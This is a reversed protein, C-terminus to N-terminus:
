ILNYNATLNLDRNPMKITITRDVTSSNGVIEPFDGTTESWHSFNGRISELMGGSEEWIDSRARITVDTEPNFSGSLVDWEDGITVTDVDEGDAITYENQNLELSYKTVYFIALTKNSDMIFNIEENNYNVGGIRYNRFNFDEEGVYSPDSIKVNSNRRKKLTVRTVGEGVVVEDVQVNGGSLSPPRQRTGDGEWELFYITLDYEQIPPEITESIKDTYTSLYYYSSSPLTEAEDTRGWVPSYEGSYFVGDQNRTKIPIIDYYSFLNIDYNQMLNSFITVFEGGGLHIEFTQTPLESINMFGFGEPINIVKCKRGPKFTSSVEQIYDQTGSLEITKPTFKNPDKIPENPIEILTDLTYTFTGYEELSRWKEKFAAIYKPHIDIVAKKGYSKDGKNYYNYDKSSLKCGKYYARLLGEFYYFKDVNKLVNNLLVNYDSHYFSPTLINDDRDKSFRKYENNLTLDKEIIKLNFGLNGSYFSTQPRQSFELINYKNLVGGSGATFPNKGLDLSFEITEDSFKFKSHPIKSRDLIHPKYIFGTNLTSKAPIFKKFLKFLSSDFYKTLNLYEYINLLGGYNESYEKSIKDLEKYRFVGERRKRPDAIINNIIKSGYVNILNNDMENQLSFGIEIVNPTYNYRGDIYSPIEISSNKSLLTDRYNQTPIKIRDSVKAELGVNSQNLFITEINPNLVGLEIIFYEKGGNVFSNEGSPHLSEYSGTINDSDLDLLSGLPARFILINSSSLSGSITEGEISEPNMVFNDFINESIPHRYYRFEQFNSDINKGTTPDYGLYISGDNNWDNNYTGEISSSHNFGLYNGYGGIYPKNKLYLTFKNSDGTGSGIEVRNERQLMVGWWNNNFIPADIYDSQTTGINFYLRGYDKYPELSSSPHPEIFIGIDLGTDDKTLLPQTQESHFAKFRFIITDPVYSEGNYEQDYYLESWPVNIYSVENTYFSENYKDYWYDYDQTQNLTKGGYENIRLITSPIGFINILQKLGELTGKRKVLYPLNHYLRQHIEKKIRKLPFDPKNETIDIIEEIIEEDESLNLSGSGILSRFIDLNNRNTSPIELGFSKLIDEIIDLPAGEEFNNTNNSLQTISKIYLWIIDYFHGVMDIFDKYPKSKPDEKLYNPITNYLYNPNRDDYISAELIVGGYYVDNEDNSGFWVKVESSESSYLEYPYENTSKPWTLSGSEYYLYNEYGDFNSIIDEKKNELFKIEQNQTNSDETDKLTNIDSEYSELLEIKYKFNNLRKQISSFHVFNNFKSYNVNLEVGKEKIINKLKYLSEKVNTSEIDQSSMYQSSESIDDKFDLNFNPGKLSKFIRFDGVEEFKVNFLQTESPKTIIQLKDKIDFESPLPSYLKVLIFDEDYNIQINIGILYKNEKFRLYFESFYKDDKVKEFFKNFDEELESINIKTSKLKIETRSSSIEEIYFFKELSSGLEYTIYNYLLNIEGTTIGKEKLLKSPDLNIDLFQNELGINDSYYKRFNPESFLLNNNLDYIHLEIFDEDSNFSGTFNYIPINEADLHSFEENLIVNPNIQKIDKIM